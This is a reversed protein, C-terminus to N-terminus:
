GLRGAMDRMIRVAERNLPDVTVSRKVATWADAQKGQGWLLMGLSLWASGCSPDADIAQRFLAEAEAIEGRRAALTALVVLARSHKGDCAVVQRAAQGALFDNGLACHCIAEVEHKHAPNTHLPMEPLVQLAEEHRGNRMLLEALERYPEPNDPAVRIGKQMLLDIAKDTDGRMALRRSERIADLPVLRRLTLEDLQDYNWKKRYLAMNRMMAEAYNIRNATFSQSGYHHIFVDGAIVNRHGALEARLCYDDDEFNGSGFTEDLLGIENVLEKKFLMCFGVIRRNEIMRYRNAERFSISFDNLGSVTDYGITSVRQIGSINNTMPGVIGANPQRHLCELMGSLWGSTVVVDNNLLLIYEGQAAEIGQNCGKAFGLNSGNEILRYNVNRKVQDRLWELTGDTSGNDIIIIEHPEPTFKQISELCEKTCWLQNFTLIVITVLGFAEAKEAAPQQVAASATTQTLSRWTQDDQIWHWGGQADIVADPRVKGLWKEHLRQINHDVKTFREKGSKSEHHILVSAPQYALKWGKEGLKFCLDVDEYGNWYGEDFGGVDDFLDRRIMLCAATLAKYEMPRNAQPTDSPQGYFVHRPLLLDPITQNETVLVGAHQITGDPFLLKSGVAGISDDSKLMAILQELWREQPETDNNLFLLYNGRAAAAGQNCAHAFGLNTANRITIVSTPLTKFLHLTGDSSANDVLILEYSDPPTHQTLANLCQLTFEVSNYLPIIISILTRKNHSLKSMNSNYCPSSDSTSTTHLLEDYLQIYDEANEQISKIQISQLGKHIPQLSYPDKAIERLRGALNEADGAQFLFGTEGDIIREAIAGVDSAIVPIGMAQAESLTLCFTEHWVSPIMVLDIDALLQPLQEVLYPGHLIFGLQHAKAIFNRDTINGFSHFQISEGALKEAAEFVTESGKQYTLNGLFAVQLDDGRSPRTMKKPINVGHPIVRIIEGVADGFVRVFQQKVFESPAVIADVHALMLSIITHREALYEHLLVARAPNKVYRKEGLCKFCGDNSSSAYDRDCKVQSPLVLNYEPCLFFYDHISVVVKKGLRKAIFPLLFTTWKILHQFHVIEYDGGRLFQAFNNEVLDNWLENPVGIFHENGQICHCNIMALRLFDNIRKTQFDVWDPYDHPFLVTSRYSNSECSVMNLTHLETGAKHFFSHIVHLVHPRSEDTNKVLAHQVREQTERLPNRLCYDFVLKSYDPWKLNLIEQNRQRKESIVSGQGFSAEGCHHVYADDCCRVEMGASRVRMCFDCEEGYGAGFIPDFEGVMDISKRTILMCFGVATPIEPYSHSSSQAILEAFIDPDYGQPLHNSQNMEPVSLITANNSLPSIVGTQPHLELCRDMRELWGNTVQTDSNLIVVDQRSVKFGRNTNAIFGSNSSSELVRIHHYKKSFAWLMPLIREDTSADDLLYVTHRTDTHTVVSQLCRVLHDYANYIPILIDYTRKSDVPATDYQRHSDRTRLLDLLKANITEATDAGKVAVINDGNLSVARKFYDIADDFNRSLTRCGKLRLLESRIFSEDAGSKLLQQVIDEEVFNDFINRGELLNKMKKSVIKWVVYRMNQLCEQQEKLIGNSAYHKYKNHVIKLTKLFMPFTGSVMGSGDDRMSFECTIKPIHMFDYSRSLRIWLDWDEHRPLSEDFLGTHKLCEKEHMLCLVPLYNDVLLKERDFNVSYIVEKDEKLVKGNVINKLNRYADSYAVRYKSGELFNVLTQLHNSYYIDDDDLYAIYKGKAARLGTNRTAALGKNTDHSLYYIKPTNFAQVVSSVDQGADNIVIIEFDQFAQDLVSQIADKLMTPRNYTPVIVSVIPSYEAGEQALNVESLQKRTLAYKKALEAFFQQERAKDQSVAQSTKRWFYLPEKINALEYHESLRLWLDYDQACRFEEDYGDVMKLASKRMLVSGHGFWNQKELGAKIQQSETLVDVRYITKGTENIVYYASGVLAYSPHSELFFVQKELRFPHSVDDADMRAIFDGRCHKLVKNLSRTLGLNQQNTFVRIRPDDIQQLIQATNDASADNVILFELNNFTQNQISKIAELLYGGGNYVSMIVSVKPAIITHNQIEVPIEADWTQGYWARVRENHGKLYVLGRDDIYEYLKNDLVYRYLSSKPIGVFVNFWTVTPKIDKLLEMTMQLDQQTETPVGVIISAATNIGFEQCLHFARRVDELKIAKHMFDLLRQSGSEVGIYAGKAGARAMLEVTERDLSSARTECVWPINIAKAIMLNCFEYLRNKNLTFNDERFYIGKAGYHKVVYEIDAVVREASFYTYRRGWISGVSCFTCDFPCGRSTNMTFVPGEPLWNGGWDYPMKAFYDWAPMPLEDLSEISPYQVIRETIKGAVIDRLAYEGEGIVIHDVFPPITDPSVSAHPGGAVIKGHWLGLQRMEELRYFMRLSDRYCITNTYIGVFDIQHRQLYDTELFNSPSLYNDIFFVNHGYDRLVSILFGVGVPPRKETTSFPTQAPPASTTLLVNM